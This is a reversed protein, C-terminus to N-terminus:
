YYGGVFDLVNTLALTNSLLVTAIGNDPQIPIPSGLKGYMWNNYKFDQGFKRCSRSYKRNRVASEENADQSMM